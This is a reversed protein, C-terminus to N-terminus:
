VYLAARVRSLRYQAGNAGTSSVTVCLRLDAMTVGAWSVGWTDAAGGLESVAANTGPTALNKAGGLPTTGDFWQAAMPLVVDGGTDADRSTRLELLAGAVTAPAFNTFPFTFHLVKATQGGALTVTTPNDLSAPPNLLGEVNNWTQGVAGQLVVIPLVLQGSQSVGLSYAVGRLRILSVMASLAGGRPTTTTVTAEHLQVSLGIGPEDSDVARMAALVRDVDAQNTGRSSEAVTPQTIVSITVTVAVMDPQGPGHAATPDDTIDVAVLRAVRGAEIHPDGYRALKLANSDLDIAEFMTAVHRLVDEHTVRPYTANTITPATM